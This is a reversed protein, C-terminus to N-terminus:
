VVSMRQLNPENSAPECLSLLSCAEVVLMWKLYPENSQPCSHGPNHADCGNCPNKKAGPTYQVNFILFASMLLSIVRTFDAASLSLGEFVVQFTSSPPADEGTHRVVPYCGQNGFEWCSFVM